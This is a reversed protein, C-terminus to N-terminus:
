ANRIAVTNSQKTSRRRKKEQSRDVDYGPKSMERTYAPQVGAVSAVHVCYLGMVHVLISM